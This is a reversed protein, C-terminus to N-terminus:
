KAKNEDSTSTAKFIMQFVKIDGADTDTVFVQGKESVAIGCPNLLTKVTFEIVARGEPTFVQIRRNGSDTVYLYNWSDIALRKPERFQGLTSGKEGWTRIPNGSFDYNIIRHNGTDVVYVTGHPNVVLDTPNWFQERSSGFSGMTFVLALNKSFQVWRHNLTDVVFVEGNRGLGIGEPADFEFDESTTIIPYFIRNVLNCYQIRNNGTDAVYLTDLSLAVDNPFDFEGDRWGYSGFEAVFHGNTDIVQVRNNGADAVYLQGYADITLGMPMLFEGAGQGTRGITKVYSVGLIPPAERERISPVFDVNPSVTPRQVGKGDPEPVTCSTYCLLSICILISGCRALKISAIKISFLLPISVQFDSDRIFRTAATNVESGNLKQTKRLM